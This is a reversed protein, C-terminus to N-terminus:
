TKCAQGDDVAALVSQAAANRNGFPYLTNPEQGLCITLTRPSPTPTFLVQPTITSQPAETASSSWSGCASLLLIILVLLPISRHFRNKIGIM